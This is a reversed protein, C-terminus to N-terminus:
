HSTIGNELRREFDRLGRQYLPVWEPRPVIRDRFRVMQAAADMISYSESIGQKQRLYQEWGALAAVAAGLASGEDSVLRDLTRNLVSALIELMLDSRAIGGSVSLRTLRQGAEEHANVGLAILYAIAEFAARVRRGMEQPETPWWEVRPSLVGVSPEAFLFPM